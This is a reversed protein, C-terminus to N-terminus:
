SRCRSSSSVCRASDDARRVAAALADLQQARATDARLAEVRAAAVEAQLLRVDNRSAFCGAGLAAAGLLAGARGARRAALGGTSM